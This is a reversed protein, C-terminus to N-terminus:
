FKYSAEVSFIDVSNEFEGSLNGRGFNEDTPAAVAIQQDISSDDVFLHVYGVDFNWNGRKHGAGLALWVRDTGPIRPTRHADPIPTEDYAVGMRLICTDNPRYTAGVSYRMSDDWDETTVLETLTGSATPVGQDLKIVLKDFSSWDTWMIDAMVSWKENYQHYISMQASAPLDIDGSVGQNAISGAPTFAVDGELSQQVESRYSLGARTNKDFEYLLGFNYGYGWDDADMVALIDNAQSAAPNGTALLGGDLMSSLTADIYQASIGLGLSLEDNVKYAASPNINITMMDSEVAHYRGVWDSDYKTALGFPANIGLGFSWGNDFTETYYLNPVVANEGGEGGNGGTYDAGAVNTASKKKFKTSPMIFHVAGTVQHGELRTMGAPNFYVTSPDEAVAAGGAFATGLGKVSQEIIAFGAAFGNSAMGLIFVAVVLVGIRLKM